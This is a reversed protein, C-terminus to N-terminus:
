MVVSWVDEGRWGDGPGTLLYKLAERMVEEGDRLVVLTYADDPLDRANVEDFARGVADAPCEGEGTWESGTTKRIVKAEYRM